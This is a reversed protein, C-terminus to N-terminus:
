FEFFKKLGLVITIVNHLRDRPFLKMFSASCYTLCSIIHFFDGVSSILISSALSDQSDNKSSNLFCTSSFQISIDFM